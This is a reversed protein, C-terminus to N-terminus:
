VTHVGNESHYTHGRHAEYEEHSPQRIPKKGKMIRGEEKEDGMIEEEVKGEKMEEKTRDKTLTEKERMLTEEDAMDEDDEGVPYTNWPRISHHDNDDVMRARCFGLGFELRLAPM